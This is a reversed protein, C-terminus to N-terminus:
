TNNLALLGDSIRADVLAEESAVDGIVFSCLLPHLMTRKKLKPAYGMVENNADLLTPGAKFLVSSGAIRSSLQKVTLLNIEFNPVCLTGPFKVLRFGGSRLAHKTVLTGRGTAYMRHHSNDWQIAKPETECYDDLHWSQTVIHIKCASDLPTFIRSM